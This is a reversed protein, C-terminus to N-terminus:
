INIRTFTEWHLKMILHLIQFQTSLQVMSHFPEAIFSECISRVRLMEVVNDVFSFCDYCVDLFLACRTTNARGCTYRKVTGNVFILNSVGHSSYSRIPDDVWTNRSQKRTPEACSSNRPRIWVSSCLTKMRWDFSRPSSTWTELQISKARWTFWRPIMLLVQSTLFNFEILNNIFGCSVNEIAISTGAIRTRAWRM